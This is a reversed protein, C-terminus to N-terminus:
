AQGANGVEATGTPKSVSARSLAAEDQAMTSWQLEGDAGMWATPRNMIKDYYGANNYFQLYPRGHHRSLSRRVLLTYVGM